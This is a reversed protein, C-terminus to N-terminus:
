GECRDGVVIKSALRPDVVLLSNDIEVLVVSGNVHTKIKRGPAFGLSFLRKFEEPSGEVRTVVGVGRLATLPKTAM